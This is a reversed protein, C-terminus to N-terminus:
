CDGTNGACGGRTSTVPKPGIPKAAAATQRQRPQVVVSQPRSLSVVNRARSASSEGNISADIHLITM